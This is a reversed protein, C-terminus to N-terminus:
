RTQAVANELGSAISFWIESGDECTIVDCPGDTGNAIKQGVPEKDLIGLLDSEDSVHLVPYPRERTGDGALLLGKTCARELYRERAATETAGLREAAATALRHVRPSLLWNPMLQEAFEAAQDYAGAEVLEALREDEDSIMAYGPAGEVLARLRLFTESNPDALFDSLEDAM